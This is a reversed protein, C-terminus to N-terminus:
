FKLTIKNLSVELQKSEILDSISDRTKCKNYISCIRKLFKITFPSVKYDFITLNNELKQDERFSKRFCVALENLLIKLNFYNTRIEEQNGFNEYESEFYEEEFAIENFYLYESIQEKIKQYNCPFKYGKNVKSYLRFNDWYINELVLEQSISIQFENGIDFNRLIILRLFSTFIFHHVHIWSKCGFHEFNIKLINLKPAENLIYNQYVKNISQYYNKNLLSLNIILKYDNKFYNTHILIINLVDNM